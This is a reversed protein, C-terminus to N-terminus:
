IDNPWKIFVPVSRVEAGRSVFVVLLPIPAPPPTVVRSASTRYFFVKLRKGAERM